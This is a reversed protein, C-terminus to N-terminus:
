CEFRYTSPHIPHIPNFPHVESHQDELLVARRHQYVPKRCPVMWITPQWPYIWSPGSAPSAQFALSWSFPDFISFSHTCCIIISIMQVHLSRKLKSKLAPQNDNIWVCTLKENELKDPVQLTDWELGQYIKVLLLHLSLIIHWWRGGAEVATESVPDM